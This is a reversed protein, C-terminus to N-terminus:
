SGSPRQGRMASRPELSRWSASMNVRDVYAILNFLFLLLFIWFRRRTMQMEAEGRAHVNMM